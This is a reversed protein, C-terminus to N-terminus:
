WSTLTLKDLTSSQKAALARQLIAGARLPMRPKQVSKAVIGLICTGEKKDQSHIQNAFDVLHVNIEAASPTFFVEMVLEYLRDMKFEPVSVSKLVATGNHNLLQLSVIVQDSDGGILVQLHPNEPRWALPDSSVILAVTNRLDGLTFRARIGIKDALPIAPFLAAMQAEALLLSSYGDFRPSAFGFTQYRSTLLGQRFHDEFLIATVGSSLMPICSSGSTM